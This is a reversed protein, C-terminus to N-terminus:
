AGREPECRVAQHTLGLLHMAALLSPNLRVFHEFIAFSELISFKENSELGQMEDLMKTATECAPHVAAVAQASLKDDILEDLGELFELRQAATMAQTVLIRKILSIVVLRSRYGRPTYVILAEDGTLGDLWTCHEAHTRGNCYIEETM